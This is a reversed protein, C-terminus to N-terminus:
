RQMLNKKQLYKNHDSTNIYIKEIESIQANYDAKKKKVLDSVDPIKNKVEGIEMKTDLITTAM